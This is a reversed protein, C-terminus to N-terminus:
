EARRRSTQTPPVCQDPISQALTHQAPTLQKKLDGFVQNLTHDTQAFLNGACHVSDFANRPKACGSAYVGSTFLSVTVAAVCLLKRNM